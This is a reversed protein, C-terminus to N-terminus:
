RANDRAGGSGRGEDTAVAPDQTAIIQNPIPKPCRFLGCVRRGFLLCFGLFISSHREGRRGTHSLTFNGVGDQVDLAARYSRLPWGGHNLV